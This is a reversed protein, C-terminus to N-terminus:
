NCCYGYENRCIFFNIYRQNQHKYKKKLFKLGTLWRGSLVPATVLEYKVVETITFTSQTSGKDRPEMVITNGLM